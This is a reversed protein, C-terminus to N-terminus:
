QWPYATYVPLHRKRHRSQATRVVISTGSQLATNSSSGNSLANFSNMVYTRWDKAEFPNTAAEEATMDDGVVAAVRKDLGASRATALLIDGASRSDWLSTMGPQRMLLVCGRQTKSAGIKSRMRHPFTYLLLNTPKM